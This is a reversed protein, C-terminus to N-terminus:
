IFSEYLLSKCETCYFALGNMKSSLSESGISKITPPGIIIKSCGPNMCGYAMYKCLSINGFGYNMCGIEENDKIDISFIRIGKTNGNPIISLRLSIKSNFKDEAIKERLEQIDTLVLGALESPYKWKILERELLSGQTGAKFIVGM